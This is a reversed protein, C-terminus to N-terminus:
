STERIRHPSCDPLISGSTSLLLQPIKSFLMGCRWALQISFQCEANDSSDLKASFASPGLFCLSHVRHATSLLPRSQAFALVLGYDGAVAHGGVGREAAMGTM